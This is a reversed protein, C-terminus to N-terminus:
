RPVPLLGLENVGARWIRVLATLALEEQEARGVAQDQAEGADAIEIEPGIADVAVGSSKLVMTPEGSVWVLYYLSVV